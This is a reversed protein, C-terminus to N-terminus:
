RNMINLPTCSKDLNLTPSEKFIYLSELIRLNLECSATDILSFNSYTFTQSNNESHIRPTSHTPSTVSRNARPSIGLHPCFSVKSQMKINGVYFDQCSECQYKYIFTHAHM